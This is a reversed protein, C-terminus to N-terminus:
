RNNGQPPTPTGHAPTVWKKPSTQNCPIVELAQSMGQCTTKLEKIAGTLEVRSTANNELARLTRDHTNSVFQTHENRIEKIEAVLGTKDNKMDHYVKWIVFALLMGLSCKGYWTAFLDFEM